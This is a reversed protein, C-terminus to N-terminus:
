PGGVGASGQVEGGVGGCSADEVRRGPLSKAPILLAFPQDGRTDPAAPRVRVVPERGGGARPAWRRLM